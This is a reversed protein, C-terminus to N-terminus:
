FTNSGNGNIDLSIQPYLSSRSISHQLEGSELFAENEAYAMSNEVQASLLKLLFPENFSPTELSYAAAAAASLLIICIIKKM